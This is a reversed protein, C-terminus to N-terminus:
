VLVVRDFAARRGGLAAFGPRCTGTALAREFHGAAAELLQLGREAAAGVVDFYELLKLLDAGLRQGPLALVRRDDPEHVDHQHGRDLLAGAVNVDLRVLLLEADAVADVPDE